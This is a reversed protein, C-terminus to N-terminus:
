SRSRGSPRRKPAPKPKVEEDEASARQEGTEGSAVSGGVRISQRLARNLSSLEGRLEAVSEQRGAAMEEL